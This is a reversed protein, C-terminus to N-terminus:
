ESVTHVCPIGTLYEYECCYSIFPLETPAVAYYDTLAKYAKAGDATQLYSDLEELFTWLNADFYTQLLPKTCVGFLEVDEFEDALIFDYLDRLYLLSPRGHYLASKVDQGNYIDQAQERSHNMRSIRDRPRSQFYSYGRQLGDYPESLANQCMYINQEFEAIVKNRQIYKYIVTTILAGILAALVAFLVKKYVAEVHM